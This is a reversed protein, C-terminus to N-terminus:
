EQEFKLQPNNWWDTQKFNLIHKKFESDLSAIKEKFDKLLVNESIPKHDIM